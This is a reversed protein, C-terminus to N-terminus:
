LVEDALAEAMRRTARIGADRTFLEPIMLMPVAPALGARLRSIQATRTRRLDVALQAGRLVDDIGPGAVERLRAAVGDDIARFVVDEGAAFPEPLVRNMVVAALEVETETDLRAALELTESVPMEEPIAVVVTGTVAPDQLIDLMWATQDRVLGVRVLEHIAAPSALQGVVHGTASADVVVIDYNGERVEYAFKGVTLIERVGPAASAVFDFSRALPGLRTVLPLHLHIRLYERLSAETDMAM